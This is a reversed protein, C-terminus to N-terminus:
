KDVWTRGGSIEGQEFANLERSITRRRIDIQATISGRWRPIGEVLRGEADMGAAGRMRRAQCMKTGSTACLDLKKHDAVSAGSRETQAYCCPFCATLSATAVLTSIPPIGSSPHFAPPNPPLSRWSSELDGFRWINLGAPGDSM